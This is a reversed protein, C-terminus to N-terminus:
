IKKIDKRNKMVDLSYIKKELEEHKSKKFATSSIKIHKNKQVVLSYIVDELCARWTKQGYLATSSVRKIDKITNKKVFLSYIKERKQIEIGNLM